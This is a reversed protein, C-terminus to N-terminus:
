PRLGRTPSPRPERPLSGSTSWTATTPSGSPTWTYLIMPVGENVNDLAQAFMADYGATIQAINDWGGFAIMNEIINDCTWSQPCGFIDAVGNGPVSDTADFAALAAANRNLEDM